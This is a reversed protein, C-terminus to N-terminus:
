WASAVIVSRTLAAPRSQKRDGRLFGAVFQSQDPARSGSIPYQDWTGAVAASNQLYKLNLVSPFQRLFKKYSCFSNTLTFVKNDSSLHRKGVLLLEPNQKEVLAILQDCCTPVM